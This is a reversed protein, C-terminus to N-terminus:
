KRTIVKVGSPKSLKQATQSFPEWQGVIFAVLLGGAVTVVLNGLHNSLYGRIRPYSKM